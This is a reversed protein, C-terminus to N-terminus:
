NFGTWVRTMGMVRWATHDVLPQGARIKKSKWCLWQWDRIEVRRRRLHGISKAVLSRWLLPMVLADQWHYKFTCKDLKPKEDQFKKKKKINFTNQMILFESMCSDIQLGIYEPTWMADRTHATPSSQPVWVPGLWTLRNIDMAQRLRREVWVQRWAQHYWSISVKMTCM